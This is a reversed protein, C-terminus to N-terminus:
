TLPRWDGSVIFSAWFAPHRRKPDRLKRLQVRRMAEARGAGALLEKYFGGMLERTAQDDVAWLSMVQSEAGALV